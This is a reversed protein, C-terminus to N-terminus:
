FSIKPEYIESYNNSGGDWNVTISLDLRTDEFDYPIAIEHSKIEGPVLLSSITIESNYLEYGNNDEASVILKVNEATADGKNQLTFTVTSVYGVYLVYHEYHAMSELKVDAYEKFEPEFSRTYYNTGGDWTITISLDLRADDFDYPVLIEYNKVEWPLIIPLVTEEKNYNENGDNDKVIVHIKIDDAIINGRNQILLDISSTYGNTLDYSEHHTLSELLVDAYEKFEPEFSRTYYNTGGDWSISINVNLQSIEFDYPVDILQVKEEDPSITSNLTVEKNYIETGDNDNIDVYLKVDEAIANGKNQLTFSLASIYRTPLEFSEHHSFGELEVNAVNNSNNNSTCGTFLVSLLIAGVAAIIFFIKMNKKM